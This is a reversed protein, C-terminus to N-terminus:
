KAGPKATEQARDPRLAPGHPIQRRSGRFRFIIAVGSATLVATVALLGSAFSRKTGPDRNATAGANVASIAPDTALPEQSRYEVVSGNAFGVPDVESALDAGLEILTPRLRDPAKFWGTTGKGWGNLGDQEPTHIM